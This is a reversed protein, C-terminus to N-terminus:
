STANSTSNISNINQYVSGKLFAASNIIGGATHLFWRKGASKGANPKIMGKWRDWVMDMGPSINYKIIETQIEKIILPTSYWKSKEIFQRNM